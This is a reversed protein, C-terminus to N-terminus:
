QLPGCLETCYLTITSTFAHNSTTFLSLNYKLQKPLWLAICQLELFQQLNHWLFCQVLKHVIWRGVTSWICSLLIAWWLGTLVCRSWATLSWLTWQVRSWVLKTGVCCAPFQVVVVCGKSSALWLGWHRHLCGNCRNSNAIFANGCIYKKVFPVFIM